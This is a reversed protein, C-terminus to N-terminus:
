PLAHRRSAKVTAFDPTNVHGDANVDLRFNAATTEQARAAHVAGLDSINVVGDGNVDGILKGYSAAASAISDGEDDHVGALSVTVVQQDCAAADLEVLFARPNGPDVTASIVSGCSSAVDDVATLNRNFNFVITDAATARDEIGPSGTSPLAIDFVGADGHVKRSVANGLVFGASTADARIMWNGVLGYNEIPSVPLDNNNLNHYDGTTGGAVYSRNAYDPDTEDFAAPYQGAAHSIFFGVFFNTTTVVTPPFDTTIFTDTGQGSIVGSATALVVADTPSGDGNPDSWIIATYTLGDLSPDFFLPAGWAISVSNIMDAGPIVAFENLCILDGGITLGIVDESTGDDIMYTSDPFLLHNWGAAPLAPSRFQSASELGSGARASCPGAVALALLSVLLNRRFLLKM